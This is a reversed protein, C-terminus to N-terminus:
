IKEKSCITADDNFIELLLSGDRFAHSRSIPTTDFWEKLLEGDPTSTGAPIEYWRTTTVKVLKSGPHSTLHNELTKKIDQKKIIRV